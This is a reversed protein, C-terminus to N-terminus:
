DAFSFLPLEAGEAAASVRAGHKVPRTLSHSAVSEIVEPRRVRAALWRKRWFASILRTGDGPSKTKLLYKARVARSKLIERFNEALALGYVLRPSGHRLLGDSPFGAAELGERMKRLKPSVGEGFISNVRRGERQQSAVVEAWHLTTRSFHYSGFGETRGLPEYRLDGRAFEGLAEKPIRLRNYQSSSVGYLSTTGLLVLNPERMVVAGRMGSAIISVATAYREDYARIIEPSFMLLSVLKGGLVASYPPVAGCVTIELMDIGVHRARLSRAVTAIAQRGVSSQLIAKLGARTPLEMGLEIFIRRTALLKSLTSARKSRFLFSSAQARWDALAPSGSAAKYNTQKPYREHAQRCALSERDLRQSVERSPHRLESRTLLGEDIFDQCLIEDIADALLKLLYNANGKTPRGELESLIRSTSWGIWDDRVRLQVVSSALAAIGIVPHGEVARDRILIQMRRGPGSQYASSWTHRFYRWIDILRIGTHDCRSDLDVVQIYPDVLSQLFDATEDKTAKAKRLDIALQEGDRMLSFISVWRGQHLRTEEMENIFRRVSEEALQRDREILHSTRVRLKDEAANLGSSSPPTLVVGNRDTQVGWRQNRLDCLVSVFLAGVAGAPDAGLTGRGVRERLQDIFEDSSIGPKIDTLIHVHEALEKRANASPLAPWAVRIPSSALSM